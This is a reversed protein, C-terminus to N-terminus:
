SRVSRSSRPRGPSTRSDPDALAKLVKNVQVEVTEKATAALVQMPLVFLALVLLAVVIHSRKLRM